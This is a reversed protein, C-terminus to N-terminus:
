PCPFFALVDEVHKFTRFPEERVFQKQRGLPINNCLSYLRSDNKEVPDRAGTIRKNLRVAAIKLSKGDRIRLHLRTVLRIKRNILVRWLFYVDSFSQERM